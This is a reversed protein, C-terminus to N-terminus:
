ADGLYLAKGQNQFAEKMRQLKEEQQKIANLQIAEQADDAQKLLEEVPPIPLELEINCVKMQKTYDGYIQGDEMALLHSYQDLEIGGKSFEDLTISVAFEQKM